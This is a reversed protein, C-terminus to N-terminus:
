ASPVTGLALTRQEFSDLRDRHAETDLFLLIGAAVFALIGMLLLIEIGDLHDETIPLMWGGASRGLNALTMYIAFQTAAVNRWCLNMFLAIVGVFVLQSLLAAVCFLAAVETTRDWLGPWAFAVVHCAASSLLAILLLRKAGFRDIAPGLPIVLAAAAFGVIGIFWTYQESTIGIQKALVPFLGVAMGDRLRAVFEVAIALLSMPMVLVRVVDMLNARMSHPTLTRPSAEGQTWPLLREGPRERLVGALAFILAVTAACAIAGAAIGAMSLLTGCLAGFASSAAAQGFGMFTNARGREDEPLVDIAMGDVAVDQSAAFVNVVVGAVTLATLPDGVAHGAGVFAAAILSLVLGGQMAIVWPRRFGMPLFTFRDMFPGIILKLAWPLGIWGLYTGIEGLTSGQEALWAPMALSLLGIPVGQAFYFVGFSGFRLWRSESLVLRKAWGSEAIDAPRM